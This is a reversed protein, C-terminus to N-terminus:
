GGALTSAELRALARGAALLNERDRVPLLVADIEDPELGLRAGARRVDEDGAGPALGARAAIRARAAAQVPMAGARPSRTKALVVGLSEVFARRPPALVRREREPPGLRRGRALMWVLAALVLGGLTWLWGRPIADIGSAEGFGHVSEAFKVPREPGGALALGLAANDGEALLRNQLISSDAVLLVRGRGVDAVTLLTREGGALVPLSGGADEWSGKGAARVDELGAVEPVPAIPAARGAGAGSWAPPDDLLSQIWVPNAGGAILRGGDEVFRRLARRDDSELFPPDLVVLTASLDGTGEGPPVRLRTIRHGTRRLLDAYAALGDQGTAYSSSTPGGPSGTLEDIRELVLNAAILLALGAGAIKWVTV